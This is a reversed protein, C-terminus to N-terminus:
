WIKEIEHAMSYRDHATILPQPPAPLRSTEDEDGNSGASTLEHLSFPSRCRIEVPWSELNRMPPQLGPVRCLVEDLSRLV